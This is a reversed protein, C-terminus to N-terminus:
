FYQKTKGTWEDEEKPEENPTLKTMGYEMEYKEEERIDRGHEKRWKRWRINLPTLLVLLIPAVIFSAILPSGLSVVFGINVGLMPLVYKAFYVLAISLVLAVGFLDRNRM